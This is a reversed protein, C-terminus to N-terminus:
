GDRRLAPLMRLFSTTSGCLALGAGIWLATALGDTGQAGLCLAVLAAGLSQGLLRATALIGGAGGGRHRPASAMLAKM